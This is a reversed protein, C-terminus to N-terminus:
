ATQGSDKFVHTKDVESGGLEGYKQQVLACTQTGIHGSGYPDHPLAAQRISELGNPVLTSPPHSHPRLLGGRLHSCSVFAKRFPSAEVDM